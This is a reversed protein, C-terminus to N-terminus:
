GNSETALEASTLRSRRARELDEGTPQERSVCPDCACAWGELGCLLCIDSEPREPPWYPVATM